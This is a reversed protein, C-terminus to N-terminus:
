LLSLEQETQIIEGGVIPNNNPWEGQIINANFKITWLGTIDALQMLPMERLSSLIHDRDCNELSVHTHVFERLTDIPSSTTYQGM